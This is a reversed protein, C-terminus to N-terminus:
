LLRYGPRTFLIYLCAAVFALLATIILSLLWAELWRGSRLRNILAYFLFFGLVGFTLKPPHRRAMRLILHWAAAPLYSELRM